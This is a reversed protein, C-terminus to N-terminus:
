FDEVYTQEFAHAAPVVPGPELKAIATRVAEVVEDNNPETYGDHTEATMMTAPGILLTVQEPKGELTLASLTVSDASEHRALEVAFDVLASAAADGVLWHAGDYTLKKM